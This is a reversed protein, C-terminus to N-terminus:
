SSQDDCTLELLAEYVAAHLAEQVEAVTKLRHIQPAREAPIALLRTRVRACQDGLLAAVDAIRVVAGSKLDYELQKLLGTANERRLVAEAYPLRDSQEGGRNPNKNPRNATHKQSARWITGVLAPDMKGDPLRSLAGTRIARHVLTDSVNERRAFEM